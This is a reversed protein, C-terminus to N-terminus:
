RPLRYVRRANERLVGDLEAGSLGATLARAAALVGGYGTELTSVPWDSGYMLRGPGFAALATGYYPRLHAAPDTAGAPPPVGLFGSLKCAVNPSAAMASVAGAWAPDVEAAVDAAVEATVPPGGLHDLVFQLGPLEAAARAAAPLHRTEGIVDFALGAAAVAALGRRVAPRGLWDADPEGLLPHRIGVLHAGGPRDQLQALQEAVSPSELDVWGVVGAVLGGAAALGLLEPTEWPETVTQVLVTKTVGLAAAEPILDALAFNRRLPALAPNSDLFPQDHASLDWVHHHTDTIPGTAAIPETDTVPL